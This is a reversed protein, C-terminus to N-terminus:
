VVVAPGLREGVAAGASAAGKKDRDAVSSPSHRRAAWRAATVGGTAPASGGGRQVKRRSTPQTRPRKPIVHQRSVRRAAKCRSFSDQFFALFSRLRASGSRRRAM